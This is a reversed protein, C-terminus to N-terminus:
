HNNNDNCNVVGFRKEIGAVVFEADAAQKRTRRQAAIQMSWYTAKQINGMPSGDKVCQIAYKAIPDNTHKPFLAVIKEREKKVCEAVGIQLCQAYLSPHNKKLESINM